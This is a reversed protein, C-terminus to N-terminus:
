ALTTFHFKVFLSLNICNFLFGHGCEISRNQSLRDFTKRKKPAAMQFEYVKKSPSFAEM